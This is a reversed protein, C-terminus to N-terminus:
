GPDGGQDAKDRSLFQEARAVAAVTLRVSNIARNTAQSAPPPFGTQDLVSLRQQADELIERIVNLQILSM